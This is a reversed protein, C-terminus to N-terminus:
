FDLEKGDNVEKTNESTVAKQSQSPHFGSIQGGGSQSVAVVVVVKSDPSDKTSSTSSQQQKEEVHQQHHSTPNNNNDSKKILSLAAGVHIGSGHESGNASKVAILASGHEHIEKRQQQITEKTGLSRPMKRFSLVSDDDAVVSAPKSTSGKVKAKGINVFDDENPIPTTSSSM